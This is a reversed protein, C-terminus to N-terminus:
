SARPRKGKYTNAKAATAMPTPDPSTVKPAVTHLWGRQTSPSGAASRM